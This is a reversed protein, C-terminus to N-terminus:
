HNKLSAMQRRHKEQDAHSAANPKVFASKLIPIEQLRGEQDALEEQFETVKQEANELTDRLKDYCQNM